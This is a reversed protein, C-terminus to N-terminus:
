KKDKPPNGKWISALTSGFINMVPGYIASALGIAAPGIAPALGSGLGANPMGVEFAFTRRDTENLGCVLGLAYGLGYGIVNHLIVLIVLIIGAKALITQGAATLVLVISVIGIQSMKGLVKKILVQDGKFQLNLLYGVVAPAIIFISTFIAIQKIYIFSANAAKGLIGALLIIALFSSMQIVKTKLNEKNQNFLNFVFGAIIPFIVMKFINFMM